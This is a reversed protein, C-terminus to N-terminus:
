ARLTSPRKRLSDVVVILFVVSAAGFLLDGFVYPQTEGTLLSYYDALRYPLLALLMALAAAREPRALDADLYVLVLLPVVVILYWGGGFESGLVYPLYAVLSTYAPGADRKAAVYVALALLLLWVMPRIAQAANFDVGTNVSAWNLVSWFTSFAAAGGTAPNLFQLQLPKGVMGRLFDLPTSLLFPSSLALFVAAMSALLTAAQARSERVRMVSLAFIPYLVQQKALASLGLLAGSSGDRTRFLYLGALFLPTMLAETTLNVVSYQAYYPNFLLLGAGALGRTGAGLVRYVLVGSALDAIISVLLLSASAQATLLYPLVALYIQLPPYVYAAYAAYFGLPFRAFGSLANAYFGVDPGSPHNVLALLVGASCTMAALLSTEIRPPLRKWAAKTLSVALFVLFASWELGNGAALV